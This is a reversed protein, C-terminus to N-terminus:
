STAASELQALLARFDKRQRLGAFAEEDRVYRPDDLGKEISSRLAEVAGREDGAAARGRALALWAIPEEPRIRVAVGLCLLAREYDQKALYERPVYFVTQGYLAALARQAERRSYISPDEAARRKLAAIDLAAAARDPHVSGPEERLLNALRERATEIYRAHRVEIAQQAEEEERFAPSARLAEVERQAADTSTLGAFDRGMSEWRRLALVEDGAALAARAQEEARRWEAAIVEPRKGAIGQRMAVLEMWAVADRSEAAPAWEHGGEFPEFHHELGFGALTRDLNLLEPYNFDTWGALGYFAFPTDKAPPWNFPFGGGHGIVGHVAGRQATALVCAARAGGSYGTAYARKPDIAFRAHTDEWMAKMAEVNPDLAEDSRSNNSSAIIWGFEEAAAQFREAPLRGQQRADFAYLIPWRRGTDPTYSSPLYLAYTQGPAQACVVPDVIQGTPLAPVPATPEASWASSAVFLVVWLARRV